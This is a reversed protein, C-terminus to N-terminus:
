RSMGSAPTTVVKGSAMSLGRELGKIYANHYQDAAEKQAELRAVKSSQGESAQLLALKANAADLKSQLEANASRLNTIVQSHRGDGGDGRGGGGGHLAQKYGGCSRKYPKGKRNRGFPAAPDAGRQQPRPPDHRRKTRLGFAGMRVQTTLM